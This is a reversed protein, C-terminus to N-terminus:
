HDQRISVHESVRRTRPDTVSRRIKYIAPRYANTGPDINPGDSPEIERMVRPQPPTPEPADTLIRGDDTLEIRAPNRQESTTGRAGREHVDISRPDNISLGGNVNKGLGEPLTPGVRVSKKEAM